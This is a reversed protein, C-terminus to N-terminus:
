SQVRATEVKEETTRNNTLSFYYLYQFFLDNLLHESQLLHEGAAQEEAAKDRAEDRKDQLAGKAEYTKDDWTKRFSTESKKSTAYFSM